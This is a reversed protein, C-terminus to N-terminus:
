QRQTTSTTTIEVVTPKYGTQCLCAYSGDTNICDALLSFTDCINVDVSCEDIDLCIDFPDGTYGNMCECTPFSQNNVACYANIGCDPCKPCLEDTENGSCSYSGITNLCTQNVNCNNLSIDLCEDVDDCIQTVNNREFGNPCM